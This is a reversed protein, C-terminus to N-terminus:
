AARMLKKHTRALAQLYEMQDALIHRNALILKESKVPRYPVYLLRIGAQEPTRGAKDLNCDRCATVCNEWTDRGGQSRPMIHDRTLETEPFEDGCYACIHRDRSFLLRNDRGPLASVPSWTSHKHEGECAIISAVEIVSREGNSRQIGGRFTFIVQGLSWVVAGRAYQCVANEPTMWGKPQGGSDLALSALSM